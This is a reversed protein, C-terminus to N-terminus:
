IEEEEATKTVSVFIDSSFKALQHSCRIRCKGEKRASITVTCCGNNNSTKLGTVEVPSDDLKKGTLDLYSFSFGAAYSEKVPPNRLDVSFEAYSSKGMDIAVVYESAVIYCSDPGRKCFKMVALGIVFVAVTLGTLGIVARVKLRTSM